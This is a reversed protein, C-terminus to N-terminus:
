RGARLLARIHLFLPLERWKALAPAAALAREDPVPERLAEIVFGARELALSYDSLPRRWSEFTMAIGDRDIVDVYRYPTFYGPARPRERSMEAFPHPVAICLCGPARLLRAAEAIPGDLDDMDHLSMFAVVLDACGDPLPVANASAQVVERVGGAERACRVLAPSSDLGIVTHGAATLARALRGEGCGLEITLRGPDPLLALFPPLNLQEYHYDHGPTRTWQVWTEAHTQWAEATPRPPAGRAPM